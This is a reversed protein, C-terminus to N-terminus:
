CLAALGGCGNGSDIGTVGDTGVVQLKALVHCHCIQLRKM